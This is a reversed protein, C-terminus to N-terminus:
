SKLQVLAKNAGELSNIMNSLQEKNLEVSVTKRGDTTQVEMDLALVPEQVSSIKDSSMVLKLKWDFDTMNAQSIAHSDCLLQGRIDARRSDIVDFIVSKYDADLGELNELLMDKTWTNKVAEKFLDTYADTLTWWDQLSWVKSFEDYSPRPRHCTGDVLRHLLNAASKIEIKKLLEFNEMPAAM